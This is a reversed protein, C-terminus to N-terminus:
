KLQALKEFVLAAGISGLGAILTAEPAGFLAAGNLGILGTLM